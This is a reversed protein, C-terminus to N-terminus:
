LYGRMRADLVHVFIFIGSLFFAGKYALAVAVVWGIVFHLLGKM